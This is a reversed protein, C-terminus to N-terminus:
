VVEFQKIEPSSLFLEIDLLVFLEEQNRYIGKFFPKLKEELYFDPLTTIKSIPIEKLGKVEDVIVGTVINNNTNRVVLLRSSNTRETTKLGFFSHMDIVSLIDGRLNTVGLVWETVNPVFTIKPVKNIETVNQADIAYNTDGLFFSLYRQKKDESVEPQAFQVNIDFDLYNISSDINAIISELAGIKEINSIDNKEYLPKINVINEELPQKDGDVQQEVLSNVTTFQTLSEDSIAQEPFDINQLSTTEETVKNLPVKGQKIPLDTEELNNQKGVSIDQLFGPEDIPPEFREDNSEGVVPEVLEIISLAQSFEPKEVSPEFREDDSQNDNEEVVLEIVSPDQLFEPEGVPLEFSQNDNEEVIPEVSLSERLFTPEGLPIEMYSDETKNSKHEVEDVEDIEDIEDNEQQYANSDINQEQAEKNTEISESAKIKAMLEINSLDPPYADFPSNILEDQTEIDPLAGLESAWSPLGTPVEFLMEDDSPKEKQFFKDKNDNEAM